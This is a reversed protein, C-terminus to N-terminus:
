LYQDTNYTQNSPFTHFFLIINTKENQRLSYAYCLIKNKMNLPCKSLTESLVCYVYYSRIRM